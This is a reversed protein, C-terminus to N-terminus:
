NGLAIKSAARFAFFRGGPITCKTLGRGLRSGAILAGLAGNAGSGLAVRVPASLDSCGGVCCGVSGDFLPAGAKARRSLGAGGKGGSAGCITGHLPDRRGDACCFSNSRRSCNLFSGM